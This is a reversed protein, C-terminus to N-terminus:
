NQYFHFIEYLYQHNIKIAQYSIFLYNKSIKFEMKSDPHANQQSRLIILNKITNIQNEILLM